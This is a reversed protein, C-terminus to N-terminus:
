IKEGKIRGYYDLVKQIDEVPIEKKCGLDVYQITSKFKYKTDSIFSKPTIIEKLDEANIYIDDLAYYIGKRSVELKFNGNYCSLTFIKVEADKIEEETALRFPEKKNFRLPVDLTSEAYYYPDEIASIKYAKPKPSITNIIWDGVKFNKEYVPEFWLDLVGADRMIKEIISGTSFHWGHRSLNNKACLDWWNFSIMAKVAEEYEPKILKYGIIKEMFDEFTITKSSFHEQNHYATSYDQLSYGPRIYADYFRWYFKPAWLNIHKEEFGFHDLLLAFQERAMPAFAIKNNLIDEKTYNM